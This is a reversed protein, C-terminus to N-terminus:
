DPGCALRELADLGLQDRQAGVAMVGDHAAVVASLEEVPDSHAACDIMVFAAASSPDIPPAVGLHACAIALSEPLLLEVADLATLARAQRLLGVAADISPVAVLAAATSRYWPVLRLCAATVVGLTGEAGVFWSSLDPGVTEKPLGALSGVVSGDALVAQVGVVQARMTGFRVM